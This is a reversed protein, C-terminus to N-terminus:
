FGQPWYTLPLNLLLAAAVVIVISMIVTVIVAVLRTRLAYVALISAALGTSIVLGLPQMSLAFAAGGAFVALLPAASLPIRARKRLFGELVALIGLVLLLVSLATPMTGPGMAFGRMGPLDRGAYLTLAALAVFALAPAGSRLGPEVESSAARGAAHVVAFESRSYPQAGAAALAPFLALRRLVPRVHSAYLLFFPGTIWLVAIVVALGPNTDNFANAYIIAGMLLMLGASVLSLKWASVRRQQLLAITAEDLLRAPQRGVPLYLYYPNLPEVRVGAADILQAVPRIGATPKPDHHTVSEVHVTALMSGEVFSRVISASAPLDDLESRSFINGLWGGQLLRRAVPQPLKVATRRHRVRSFFEVLIPDRMHRSLQETTVTAGVAAVRSGLGLELMVNKRAPAITTLLLGDLIKRVREYLDSSMEDTLLRRLWTPMRGVRFWPLNSVLLLNDAAHGNNGAFLSLAQGIHSTFSWNLEPFVACSAIWDYAEAPLAHRLAGGLNNASTEDTAGAEIWRLPRDELLDFLSGLATARSKSKSRPASLRPPEDAALIEVLAPIAQPSLPLVQTDLGRQLEWERYGWLERPVSTLFVRRAFVQISTGWPHLAGTMPDFFRDGSGVLILRHDAHRAAVEEFTVAPSDVFAHLRRIDENYYYASVYVQAQRFAKVLAEAYAALHDHRSRRDIFVLYEPAVRRRAFVPSFLGAGQLTATLTADTDLEQSDVMRPRRLFQAQRSFDRDLFPNVDSAHVLLRIFQPRYNVQRRQLYASFPRGPATIWAVVAAIIPLFLLLSAPGLV